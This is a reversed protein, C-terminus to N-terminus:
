GKLDQVIEVLALLFGGVNDWMGRWNVGESIDDRTEQFNM